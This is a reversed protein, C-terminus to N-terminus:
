FPNPPVIDLSVPVTNIVPNPWQRSDETDVKVRVRAGVVLDKERLKDLTRLHCRVGLSPIYIEVRVDHGDPLGLVVAEMDHVDVECNTVNSPVPGSARSLLLGANWYTRSTKELVKLRSLAADSHGTIEVVKDEPLIDAAKGSIKAEAALAAKIQWHVLMDDFRRLPSTGRVYAGYPSAHSLGMIWHDIPTSSVGAEPPTLNAAQVALYDVMGTGPERRALLKELTLNSPTGSTELLRTSGRFPVPIGREGCFQAVVRNALVMLEAVTLEASVAPLAAPLIHDYDIPRLAQSKITTSYTTRDMINALPPTGGVPITQGL